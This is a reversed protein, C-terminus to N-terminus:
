EDEENNVAPKRQKQRRRKTSTKSKPVPVLALVALATSWMLLFEFYDNAKEQTAMTGEHWAQAYPVVQELTERSPLTANRAANRLGLFTFWVFFLLLLFV